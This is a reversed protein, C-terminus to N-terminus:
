AKFADLAREVASRVDRDKDKELTRVLAQAHSGGVKELSQVARKREVPRFGRARV